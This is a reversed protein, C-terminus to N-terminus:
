KDHKNRVLKRVVTLYDLNLKCPITDYMGNDFYFILFTEGNDDNTIEVSKIYVDGQDTKFKM